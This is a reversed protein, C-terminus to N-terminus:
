GCCAQAPVDYAHHMVRPQAHPPSSGQSISMVGNLCQLPQLDWGDFASLNVKNKYVDRLAKKQEQSIVTLVRAVSKRM